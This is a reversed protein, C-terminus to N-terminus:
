YTDNMNSFLLFSTIGGRLLCFITDNNNIGNQFAFDRLLANCTYRRAMVSM